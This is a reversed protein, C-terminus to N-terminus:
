FKSLELIDSAILVSTGAYGSVIGTLLMANIEAMWLTRKGTPGYRRQQNKDLFM